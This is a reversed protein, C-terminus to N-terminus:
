LDSGRAAQADPSAHAAARNRVLDAARLQSRPGILTRILAPSATRRDASGRFPPRFRLDTADVPSWAVPAGAFRRRLKEVRGPHLEVAVM